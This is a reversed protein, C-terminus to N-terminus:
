FRQGANWTFNRRARRSLILELDSGRVRFSGGLDINMSMEQSHSYRDADVKSGEMLKQAIGQPLVMEGSSLGAPFSDSPYGAPVVGGKAFGKGFKGLIMGAAGMGGGMPGGMVRAILGLIARSTLQAILEAMMQKLSDIYMKMADKFSHIGMISQGIVKSFGDLAMQLSTALVNNFYDSTVKNLMDQAKTAATIKTPLQGYVDVMERAGKMSGMMWGANHGGQRNPNKPDLGTDQEEINSPKNNNMMNALEAKLREIVTLLKQIEGSMATALGTDLMSRMARDTVNIQKELEVMRGEGFLKTEESIAGMKVRWQDLIRTIANSAAGGSGGGGSLMNSMSKSVKDISEKMTDWAKSAKGAGNVQDQWGIRLFTDSLRGSVEALTDLADSWRGDKMQMLAEVTYRAAFTLTNLMQGTRELAKIIINDLSIGFAQFAATLSSVMEAGLNVVNSVLGAFNRGFEELPGKMRDFASRFMEPKKAIAAGLAVAAAAAIGFPGTLATLGAGLVPLMKIMGGVGMLVPGSAGLVGAFVAGWKVVEPHTSTFSIVRESLNTLATIATQTHRKLDLSEVMQQGIRQLSQTSVDALTSFLGGLTKSQKDMMGYFRGGESTASAFAEIVMDASIAGAEMDKKLSAMSRGTRAAMEQLPNFGANIMQLLDQGMLRGASSMQAFALAMSGFRQANGGSVDGIMQLSPIIRETEIGFNMLLKAADSVGDFRLPTRAAFSQLDKVVGLAKDASGTLVEFSTTTQELNSAMRLIGAAGAGITTTAFMTLRQGIGQLTDGIRNM